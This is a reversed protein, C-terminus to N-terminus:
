RPDCGATRGTASAAPRQCAAAGRGDGGAARGRGGTAHHRGAADATHVVTPIVVGGRRQGRRRRDLQVAARRPPPAVVSTPTLLPTASAAVARDNQATETTPTTSCDMTRLQEPSTTETENRARKRAACQRSDHTRRAQRAYRLEANLPRSKDSGSSGRAYFEDMTMKDMTEHHMIVLLLQGPPSQTTNSHHSSEQKNTTAPVAVLLDGDLRSYVRPFLLHRIIDRHSWQAWDRVQKLNHRMLDNLLSNAESLTSVISQANLLRNWLDKDAGDRDLPLRQVSRQYHVVCGRLFARAVDVVNALGEKKALAVAAGHAQAMCFDVTLSVFERERLGGLTRGSVATGVDPMTKGRLGCERLFEEFLERYLDMSEGLTAANLVSVTRHLCQSWATISFLHWQQDTGSPAPTPTFDKFSMDVCFFSQLTAVDIMADVYFTVCCYPNAPSDHPRAGFVVERIYQPGGASAALRAMVGVQDEGLPNCALRYDAWAHCIAASNPQLGM